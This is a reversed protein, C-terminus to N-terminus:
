QLWEYVCVCVCTQTLIGFFFVLYKIQEFHHKLKEEFVNLHKEQELKSEPRATCCSRAQPTKSVMRM